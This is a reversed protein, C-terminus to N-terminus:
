LGLSISAFPGYFGINEKKATDIGMDMAGFFFDARYGLSIKADIYRFSLAASAGVNPVAVMRARNISASRAYLSRMVGGAEHGLFQGPHLGHPGVGDTVSWNYGYYGRANTQHRGHVKQRGFLVAANAGLDLLIKGRDPSGFVPESGNWKISPGVGSFSRQADLLAAYDHFHVHYHQFANFEYKSTIAATPYRVDPEARLSIDTKSVFQAFRVGASLISSGHNGFLGVGVDRGAQFDLIAHTERQQVAADELKVHGFPYATYSKGFFQDLASYPPPFHVSYHVPIRANPTQQHQHRFGNSRGFRLGGSFVWDTGQPQFSISGEGGYSFGLPRQANQPSFFTDPLSGVFPPAFANKTSQMEELQGGLEIWVSPLNGDEEALAATSVYVSAALVAVSATTLLYWHLDNRKYGKAALESM